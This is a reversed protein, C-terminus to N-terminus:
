RVAPVPRGPPSVLEGGERVAGVDILARARVPSGLWGPPSVLEGGERVAGVDILARARVPPGLRGLM